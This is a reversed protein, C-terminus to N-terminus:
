NILKWPDQGYNIDKKDKNSKLIIKVHYKVTL